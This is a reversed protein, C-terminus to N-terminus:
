AVDLRLTKVLLTPTAFKASRLFLGQQSKGICMVVYGQSEMYLEISTGNTMLELM